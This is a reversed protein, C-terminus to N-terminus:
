RCAASVQRLMFVLYLLRSFTDEYRRHCPTDNIIGGGATRSTRGGHKQWPRSEQPSEGAVSQACHTVLAAVGLSIQSEELPLKPELVGWQEPWLMRLVARCDSARGVSDEKAM